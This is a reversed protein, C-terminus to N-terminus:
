RKTKPLYHAQMSPTNNYDRISLLALEVIIDEEVTIATPLNQSYALSDHKPTLKVKFEENMCIDLRHRAFIDYFEVLIDEIRTSEDQQLM